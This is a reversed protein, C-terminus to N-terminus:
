VEPVAVGFATGRVLDGSAFGMVEVEPILPKIRQEVFDAVAKVIREGEPTPMIQGLLEDVEADWGEGQFVPASIPKSSPKRVEVRSVPPTAAANSHNDSRTMPTTRNRPAPSKISHGPLSRQGYGGVCRSNATDVTRPAFVKTTSKERAKPRIQLSQLLAYTAAGFLAFTLQSTELPVTMFFLLMALFAAVYAPQSAEPGVKARITDAISDFVPSVKKIISSM